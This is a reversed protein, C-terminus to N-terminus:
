YPLRVVQDEATIRVEPVSGNPFVTQDWFGWYDDWWDVTVYYYYNPNVPVTYEDVGDWGPYAGSGSFIVGTTPGSSNGRRIEWSAESGPGPPGTIDSDGWVLRITGTGGTIDFAVTHTAEVNGSWDESWFDLTHNDTGTAPMPVSIYTGTQVPGGDLRYYTAMVGMSSADTATLTINANSYYQAQANSTTTPPTTDATVTFSATKRPTEVNGNQDVSWFELTHPGTATTVFSSGYVVDGGDLRSFTIGVGVEGGEAISYSIRAAGVYTAVADSTTVPPSTDTPSYLAHCNQCKSQNPPGIGATHCLGCQGGPGSTDAWPLHGITSEAHYTTHCGGQQCTGDWAGALTDFPSAHCAECLDAHAGLLDTTHCIDCDVYVDYPDGIPQASDHDRDGFIEVYGSGPAATHLLSHCQLCLINKDMGTEPARVLFGPKDSEHPFVQFRPNDSTSAGDPQTVNFEQASSTLTPNGYRATPGVSRADEHCQQCIPGRGEQLATKELPDGAADDPMVYGRNSQGLVGLTTEYSGVGTVVPVEDYHYADDAVVPHGEMIGSHESVRGQHCSACWGAGYVTATTEAGAPRQRLLRNTKVDYAVESAVASRLRDGTFPEVTYVDHASHCDICTLTNGVGSFMGASSGGGPDGGPIVNTQEIRHVAAPETGTRAKIVGYVGTGGTGDHCTECTDKITTGPLLNVGSSTADHLAHCTQCKNTGTTYGGHPGKRVAAVLEPDGHPDLIGEETAAHCDVCESFSPSPESLEKPYALAVSATAFAVCLALFAIAGAAASRSRFRRRSDRVHATGLTGVPPREMEVMPVNQSYLNLTDRSCTEPVSEIAFRQCANPRLM